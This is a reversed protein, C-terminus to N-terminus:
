SARELDLTWSPRRVRSPKATGRYIRLKGSLREDTDSSYGATQFARLWYSPQRTGEARPWAVALVEGLAAPYRFLERRGLLLWALQEGKPVFWLGELCEDALARAEPSMSKMTLM